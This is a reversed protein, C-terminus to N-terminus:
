LDFTEKYEPIAINKYGKDELARKFHKMSTEEGHVLFTQALTNQDQTEAFNILDDFDGHGSFIDLSKIEAMVKEPKGLITLEERNGTLLDHGLTGEVAYGIMLITAYPNGINQAVHREVRGGQVM